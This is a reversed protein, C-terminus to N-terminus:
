REQRKTLYRLTEDLMGPIRKAENYAPIIVSLYVSADKADADPSADDFSLLFPFPARGDPHKPDIFSNETAGSPAVNPLIFKSAFLPLAFWTTLFLALGIGGGIFLLQAGSLSSGTDMSSLADM